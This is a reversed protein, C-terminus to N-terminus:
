ARGWFAAMAAFNLRAEQMVDARAAQDAVVYLGSARSDAEANLNVLRGSRVLQYVAHKAKPDGEFHSHIEAMTRPTRCYDLVADSRSYDSGSM